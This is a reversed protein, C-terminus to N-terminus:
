GGTFHAAGSVAARRVSRFFREADIEMEDKKDGQGHHIAPGGTGGYSAVTLHPETLEEGLVETITRPIGQALEVEDLTDRNGEFLRVERRNLGLVQYRDASQLIRLLPKTHFNDAVIALEAVPRQLKYVRFMGPAGPAAVGDLAHNWFDRDGALTQFPELLPQVERTPYKQRLSGEYCRNM